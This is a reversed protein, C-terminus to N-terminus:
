NFSAEHELLKKKVGVGGAYGTLSNNSGIVRHCPVIISIPNKNCASGVARCAKNNGIKEAIQKYTSVEGFPIKQLQKLVSLSFEKTVDFDILLDFTKRKKSFYEELQKITEKIVKNSSNKQVESEIGYKVCLLHSDNAVISLKAIPSSYMTWYLSNM